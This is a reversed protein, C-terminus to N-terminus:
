IHILSLGFTQKIAPYRDNVPLKTLQKGFEPIILGVAGGILQQPNAGNAINDVLGTMFNPNQAVVNGLATQLPPGAADITQIFTNLQAKQAPDLTSSIANSAAKLDNFRASEPRGQLYTSFETAVIKIADKNFQDATYNPDSFNNSAIHAALQNQINNKYPLGNLINLAGSLSLLGNIQAPSAGSAITRLQQFQQETILTKEQFDAQFRM